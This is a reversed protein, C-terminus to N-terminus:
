KFHVLVSTHTKFIKHSCSKGKRHYKKKENKRLQRQKKLTGSLTKLPNLLQRNREKLDVCNKCEETVPTDRSLKEINQPVVTETATEDTPVDYISCCTSAAQTAALTTVRSVKRPPEDAPTHDVNRKM